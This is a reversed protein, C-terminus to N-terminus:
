GVRRKGVKVKSCWLVEGAKHWPSALPDSCGCTVGCVFRLLRASPERCLHRLGDCTPMPVWAEGMQAAATRLQTYVLPTILPDQYYIGGEMLAASQTCFGWNGLLGEMQQEAFDYFLQRLPPASFYAGLCENARFYIM